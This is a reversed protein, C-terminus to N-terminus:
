FIYFQETFFQSFCLVVIKLYVIKSVLLCYLTDLSVWMDASLVTTKVATVTQGTKGRSSYVWHGM